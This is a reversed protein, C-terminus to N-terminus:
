ELDPLRWESFDGRVAAEAQEPRRLHITRGNVGAGTDGALAVVYDGVREGALASRAATGKPGIYAHMVVDNVRPHGGTEAAAVLVLKDQAASAAAIAGMGPAAQGLFGVPGNITIYAGDDALLPLFAELALFHPYLRTEMVEKFEAFGAALTNRSMHWSSASGVAAALPIATAEIQADVQARLRAAGTPSGLDGYLATVRPRTKDPLRLLLRNFKETSRTPVLVDAGARLFGDVLYFGVNGTGGMVLATRGELGVSSLDSADQPDSTAM